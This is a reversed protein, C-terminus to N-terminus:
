ATNKAAIHLLIRREYSAQNRFGCAARKIQKIVRNGGETRANTIKTMLFAEIEPWWTEITAALRSTEPMDATACTDYFAWLRSRIVARDAPTALLQRLREKCGWAAGIENTPDDRDLVIVLKALAAPSLRNGARLLLGRHAWALDVKRGRRAHRDRTVRQRVETVAQNALRVLHFHDVVIVANPLVRRIAAAFPASPDIAVISIQDRWAQPLAELWGTVDAGSRGAALGLLWCPHKPDLDVFSTMWPNSRQWARTEDRFWRVSRTRTEDLGLRTVPVLGAGASALADARELLAANVSWDSVGYERAVDACSRVSGSVSRELKRRLRVTLRRRAGVSEHVETFVRGCPPGACRFRRKRWWVRLPRDGFPVDKLRSLRHDHVRGPQLLGCRTCAREAPATMIVVSRGASTDHPGDVVVFGPLDFLLSTANSM